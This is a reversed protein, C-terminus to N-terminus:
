AGDHQLLGPQVLQRVVAHCSSSGSSFIILLKYASKTCFIFILSLAYDALPLTCFFIAAPIVIFLFLPFLTIRYPCCVSFILQGSQSFYPFSHSGYVCCLFIFAAHSATISFLPFILLDSVQANSAPLPRKSM